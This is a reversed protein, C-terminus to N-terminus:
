TCLRKRTFTNNIHNAFIFHIFIFNLSLICMKLNMYLLIMNAGHKRADAIIGASASRVRASTIM